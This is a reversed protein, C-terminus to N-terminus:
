RLKRRKLRFVGLLGMPLLIGASPEPLAATVARPGQDYGGDALAGIIDSSDFRGSGNFDGSSWVADADADYTGAALVAILDTSTFQGDLDADGIWTSFLDQAWVHIDEDNVRSDGNLDYSAPNMGGASQSTLDDIDAVDLIGNSNFDGALNANTEAEARVINWKAQGLRENRVYYLSGDAAIWPMRDEGPTNIPEGLNEGSGFPADLSARQSVFVDYAGFEGPAASISRYGM